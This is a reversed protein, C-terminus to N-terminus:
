KDEIKNLHMNIMQMIRETTFVKTTVTSGDVLSGSEVFGSVTSFPRVVVNDGIVSGSLVVSPGAIFVRNGISTQERKILKSNPTNDEGLNALHSSHSWVFVSAAITCNEGIILGGSADLIVNEGIYCKKGIALKEPSLIKAGERIRCGEPLGFFTAREDDTLFQSALRTAIEIRLQNNRDSEVMPLQGILEKVLDLMKTVLV